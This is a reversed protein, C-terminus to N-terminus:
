TVVERALADARDLEADYRSRPGTIALDSLSGMGAVHALFDEAAARAAKEDPGDITAAWEILFRAQTAFGSDSAIAALQRLSHALTDASM